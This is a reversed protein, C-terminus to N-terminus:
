TPSRGLIQSLAQELMAAHPVKISDLRGTRCAVFGDPRVLIAGDSSIGLRSSWDHDLDVLVGASGIRYTAIRMGSADALRSAAETWESGGIGTLLVFSGDLLDLTSIRESDSGLWIHPVRTGPEGTLEQRDPLAIEDVDGEAWAVESVVASSRYRYGVIPFFEPSKQGEPIKQVLAAAPGSLLYEAAFLGVPHREAQYTSLLAASAHGQLVAALKWGLNQASQIATNVGLGEKPPM